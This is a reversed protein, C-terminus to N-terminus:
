EDGAADMETAQATRGSIESTGLERLKRERRKQRKLRLKKAAAEEARKAQLRADEQEKWRERSTDAKVARAQDAAAAVKKRMDERSAEAAAEAAAEVELHEQRGKALRERWTLQTDLWQARAADYIERRENEKLVEYAEAVDKFISAQTAQEEASKEWHKDPHHLRALAKYSKAIAHEEADAKVGLVEYFDVSGFVAAASTMWSIYLRQVQEM